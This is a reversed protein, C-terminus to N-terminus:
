SGNSEQCKYYIFKTKKTIDNSLYNQFWEDHEIAAPHRPCLSVLRLLPVSVSRLIELAITWKAVATNMVHDDVKHCMAIACSQLYRDKSYISEPLLYSCTKIVWKFTARLTEKAQISRSFFFNRKLFAWM